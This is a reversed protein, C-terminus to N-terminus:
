QSTHLWTTGLLSTIRIYSVTGELIAHLEDKKRSLGGTTRPPSPYRM